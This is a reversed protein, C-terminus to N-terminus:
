SEMGLLGYFCFAEVFHMSTMGCGILDRRKAGLFRPWWLTAKIPCATAVSALKGFRQRLCLWTDVVGLGGFVTPARAHSTRPLSM